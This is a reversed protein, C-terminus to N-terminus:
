LSFLPNGKADMKWGISILQTKIERCCGIIEQERAGSASKKTL